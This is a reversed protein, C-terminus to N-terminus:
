FNITLSLRSSTAKDSWFLICYAAMNTIFLIIYKSFILNNILKYVPPGVVFQSNLSSTLIKLEFIYSFYYLIKQNFFFLVIRFHIISRSVFIIFAINHWSSFDAYSSSSAHSPIIFWFLLSFFSYVFMSPQM